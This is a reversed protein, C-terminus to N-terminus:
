ALMVDRVVCSNCLPRGGLCNAFHAHADDFSMISLHTDCVSDQCHYSHFNCFAQFYPTDRYTSRVEVFSSPPLTCRFVYCENRIKQVDAM